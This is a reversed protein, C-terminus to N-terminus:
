TTKDVEDPLTTRCKSKYFFKPWVLKWWLMPAVYGKHRESDCFQCLIIFVCIFIENSIELSFLSWILFFFCNFKWWSSVRWHIVSLIEMLSKFSNFGWVERKRGNRRRWKSFVCCWGGRWIEVVRKCIWGSLRGIDVM